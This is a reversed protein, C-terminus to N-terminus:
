PREIVGRPEVPDAQLWRQGCNNCELKRIRRRGWSSLERVLSADICACEPCEEFITKGAPEPARPMPPEKSSIPM